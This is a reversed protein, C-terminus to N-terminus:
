TTRGPGSTRCHDWLRKVHASLAVIDSGVKDLAQELIQQRQDVVLQQATRLAAAMSRVNAAARLRSADAAARKERLAAIREGQSQIRAQLMVLADPTVEPDAIAVQLFIVPHVM